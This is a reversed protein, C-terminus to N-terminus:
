SRVEVVVVVGVENAVEMDVEVIGARMRVRVGVGVELIM